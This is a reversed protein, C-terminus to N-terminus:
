AIPPRPNRTAGASGIARLTMALLRARETPEIAIRVRLAYLSFGASSFRQLKVLDKETTLAMDARRAAAMINEWDGPGYDYHDPYDLAAAIEAGLGRVMSYLSAPHALGSVLCVRRARLDLPSEIWEGARSEVLASATLSARLIPRRALADRHAPALRSGGGDPSILVVADAREIASLPERMPGAPLTRGNGFGSTENVLLLNLNRRLRLHQFGDDLIAADLPGRRELLQLAEIRRRAVAIPGAFARAMMLPEDGAERSEVLVRGSDAVILARTGKRGYGRSVIAVNLGQERLLGALFLTFPTKGNGGVTLNGVSVVPMPPHAALRRCVSAKIISACSYVASLPALAAVM